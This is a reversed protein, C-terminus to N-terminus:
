ESKPVEFLQRLQCDRVDKPHVAYFRFSFLASDNAPLNPAGSSQHCNNSTGEQYNPDVFHDTNDFIICPLLKRNRVVDELLRLIYSHADTEMQENLFDSFKIKFATKDSEYLPRFPGKMWRQYERWYLGQLEDFSPQGGPYLLGELMNKLERTLWPVISNLDGTAKLLDIRAVMCRQRLHPELVAGFFRELFTSKGAGNNGVLIINEARGSEVALEIEQALQNDPRADLTCITASGSQVM